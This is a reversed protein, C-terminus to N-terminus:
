SCTFIQRGDIALLQVLQSVVLLAPTNLSAERQGLQVNLQEGNFITLFVILKMMESGPRDDVRAQVHKNPALGGQKVAKNLDKLPDTACRPM